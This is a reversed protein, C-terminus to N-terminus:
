LSEKISLLLMLYRSQHSNGEIHSHYQLALGSSFFWTNRLHRHFMFMLFVYVHLFEKNKPCPLYWSLARGVATSMTCLSERPTSAQSVMHSHMWPLFFTYSCLSISIYIHLYRVPLKPCECLFRGFFTFTMFRKYKGLIIKLSTKTYRMIYNKKSM